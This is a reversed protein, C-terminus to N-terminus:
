HATVEEIYRVTKDNPFDARLIIYFLNKIAYHKGTVIRKSFFSV